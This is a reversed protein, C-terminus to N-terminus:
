IDKEYAIKRVMEVSDKRVCERIHLLLLTAKVSQEIAEEVTKPETNIVSAKVIRIVDNSTPECMTVENLTM